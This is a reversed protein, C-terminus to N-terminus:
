TVNLKYPIGKESYKKKTEPNKFIKIDNYIKEKLNGLHITSLQRPTRKNLTIWYEDYIYTKVLNSATDKDLIFEEYYTNGEKIFRELIEKNIENKNKKHLLYIEIENPYVYSYILEDSYKKTKYVIIMMKNGKYNIFSVGNPLIFHTIFETSEEEDKKYLKGVLTNVNNNKKFKNGYYKVGLGMSVNGNQINIKYLYGCIYKYFIFQVFDFFSSFM